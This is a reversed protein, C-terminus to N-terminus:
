QKIFKTYSINKDLKIEYIYLGNALSGINNEILTEAETVIGKFVEKLKRGQIDLLTIILDKNSKANVKIQQVDSAPNPYLSFKTDELIIEQSNTVKKTLVSYEFNAESQFNNVNFPLWGVFNNSADFVEYVFGEMTCTTANISHIIARERPRLEGATIIDELVSSSSSRAWSSVITENSLISHPLTIKVKYKNVIYDKQAAFTVGGANEYPETLQIPVNSAEIAQSKDSNANSGFHYLNSLPKEIMRLAKGANLLGAGIRIDFGPKCSTKKASLEIIHECDEPALNDYNPTPTNHYSMMLAVTGSVHPTAGSTGGFDGYYPPSAMGPTFLLSYDLQTTSPAGVDVNHGFSVSYEGNVGGEMWCGDTGTGGVCFVWDDDITAPILLEDGGTNGRAACITVNLRNAQHVVDKMLLTSKMPNLREPQIWSHNQINLGYAYDKSPDDMATMLIADAADDTTGFRFGWNTYIEMSYLAVGKGSLGGGNDGGAIGAIGLNNNRIAGIIGAVATGHGMYDASNGLAQIHQQTFYDWGDVIKSASGGKGVPFNFDEHLYHIGSDFVGCKVTNLGGSPVVDWAEEVNIGAVSNNLSKQKQNTYEPDNCGVTPTIIMNPESYRIINSLKHLKKHVEVINMTTPLKVLLTTWFSQIRVLNGLRSLSITDTTKLQKFVKTAKLDCVYGGCFISLATDIQYKAQPTLYFGLDAFQVEQNDIAAKNMASREFRVILENDIYLPKGLSDSVIADNAELEEFQVIEYSNAVDINIAAVYINGNADLNIDIPKENSPTAINKRWNLTGDKDIRCVLIDNTTNKEQAIVYIQGESGVKLANAQLDNSYAIDNEYNWIQNGAADYKILRLKKVNNDDTVFGGVIVNGDADVDIDNGTDKKGFGDFNRTWLVSFNSSIKTTKIDYNVGDSSGSGTIYINGSNDRKIATPLDYGTGVVSNRILGIQNGISDYKVAIYDWNDFSSGSAGVSIINNNADFEIGIPTDIFGSNDYRSQWQLIGNVNWKLTLFDYNFLGSQSRMAVFANGTADVKIATAIDDKSFTSNFTNAWILNGNASYKIVLVDNNGTTGNDTTGCIYINNAADVFLGIGYDNNTGSSNYNKQWALSGDENFVSIFVDAGQNAIVNNGLTVIQNHSNILSSSWQLGLPNGTHANWVKNVLNQSISKSNCLLIVTFILTLKQFNSKM